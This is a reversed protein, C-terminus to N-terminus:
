SIFLHYLKEYWTNWFPRYRPYMSRHSSNTQQKRQMELIDIQVSLDGNGTSPQLNLGTSPM